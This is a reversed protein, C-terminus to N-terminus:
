LSKGQLIMMMMMLQLVRFINYKREKKWKSMISAQTVEHTLPKEEEEENEDTSMPFSTSRVSAHGYGSYTKM